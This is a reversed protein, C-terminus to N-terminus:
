QNPKKDPKPQFLPKRLQRNWADYRQQLLSRDEPRAQALDATEYPDTALDFLETRGDTHVLKLDHHRVAYQEGLRWFLLPHPAETSDRKLLPM